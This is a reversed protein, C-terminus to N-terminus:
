MLQETLKYSVGTCLSLLSAFNNVEQVRASRRAIFCHQKSRVANHKISPRRVTTKEQQQQLYTPPPQFVAKCLEGIEDSNLISFTMLVKVTLATPQFEYSTIVSEKSRQLYM